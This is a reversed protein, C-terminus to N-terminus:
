RSKSGMQSRAEQADWNIQMDAGSSITFVKVKKTLTSWCSFSAAISRANATGEVMAASTRRAGEM